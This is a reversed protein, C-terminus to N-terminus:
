ENLAKAITEPLRRQPKWNADLVMVTTVAELTTKDTHLNKCTQKFILKAGALEVDTTLTLVDGLKAPSRYRLHQEVVPFVYGNPDDPDSFEIGLSKFLNVRGMELWKLYAGHWMVGYCDTDFIHIDINFRYSKM